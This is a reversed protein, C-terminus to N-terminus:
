RQTEKLVRARPANPPVRDQARPPPAKQPDSAKGKKVVAGRTTRLSRRAVANPSSADVRAQLEVMFRRVRNANQGFDSRGYRSASRVDIRARNVSGEVRIVIDDWFGIILTQESAELIGAKSPRLVPPESSVVKWKLKRVAEEVLEFAEEVPREMIFTRLDPYAKLQAQAAEARYVPSNMGAARQALVAFRPPSAPDTTVDSIAPLRPHLLTYVVPWALVALGLLIGTVASAAGGDGRRWIRVTAYLGLLVAIAAGAFAAAFANLTVPTTLANFRHLAIVLLLLCVVFLAIRGAWRAAPVVTYTLREPM